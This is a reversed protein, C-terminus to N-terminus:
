NSHFREQSSRSKRRTGSGGSRVGDNSSIKLKLGPIGASEVAIGKERYRSRVRGDVPLDENNRDPAHISITRGGGGARRSAADRKERLCRKM